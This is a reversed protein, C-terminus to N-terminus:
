FGGGGGGAPAPVGQGAPHQQPVQGLLHLPQGVIQELLRSSAGPLLSTLRSVNQAHAQLAQQFGAQQVLSNPQYGFFVSQGGGQNFAGQFKNLNNQSQKVADIASDLHLRHLGIAQSLAAATDSKTANKAPKPMTQVEAPAKRETSQAARPRWTDSQAM